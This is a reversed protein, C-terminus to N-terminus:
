RGGKGKARGKGKGKARGRQQVRLVASYKEKSELRPIDARVVRIMKDIAKHSEGEDKWVDRIKHVLLMFKQLMHQMADMISEVTVFPTYRIEYLKEVWEEFDDRIHWGSSIVWPSEIVDLLYGKAEEFLKDCSKKLLKSVASCLSKEKDVDCLIKVEESVSNLFDACRDKDYQADQVYRVAIIMLEQQTKDMNNRMAKVADCLGTGTLEKEKEKAYDKIHQRTIKVSLYKDKMEPVKHTTSNAIQMLAKAADDTIASTVTTNTQVTGGTNGTTMSQDAPNKDAIMSGTTDTERSLMYRLITRQAADSLGCEMAENAEQIDKMEAMIYDEGTNFEKTEFMYQSLSEANAKIDQKGTIEGLAEFWDKVDDLTLMHDVHRAFHTRITTKTSAVSDEMAVLHAGM